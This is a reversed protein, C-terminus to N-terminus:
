EIVGSDEDNIRATSVGKIIEARRTLSVRGTTLRKTALDISEDATTIAKKVQKLTSVFNQFGEYM